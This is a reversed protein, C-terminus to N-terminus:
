FGKHLEPHCYSKIFFDTKGWFKPFHALFLDFYLKKFKTM